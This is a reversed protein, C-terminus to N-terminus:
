SGLHPSGSICNRGVVDDKNDNKSSTETEMPADNHDGELNQKEIVSASAM